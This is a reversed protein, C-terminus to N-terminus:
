YVENIFDAPLAPQPMMCKIPGSQSLFSEYDKPTNVNMLIYDLDFASLEEEKLCNVHLAPFLEVFSRQGGALNRKVMPFCSRRYVAFLPEMRGNGRQIVCADHEGLRDLLFAALEPDGNPLDTATLFVADANTQAFASHLGNLPGCGPYADVLELAGPCPFRGEINVSVAVPGLKELYREVLMASMTKDVVPLVAKDRGMRSSKGGTLIVTLM